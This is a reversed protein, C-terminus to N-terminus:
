RREKRLGELTDGLFKLKGNIETFASNHEINKEEITKLREFVREQKGQLEGIARDQQSNINSLLEKDKAYPSKTDTYEQLEKRLTSLDQSQVGQGRLATFYAVTMGMLATIASCAIVKWVGNGNSSPPPAYSQLESVSFPPIPTKPSGGKPDFIPTLDRLM